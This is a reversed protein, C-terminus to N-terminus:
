CVVLVGVLGGALMSLLLCLSGGFDVVVLLCLLLNFLLCWIAVRLCVLFSLVRLWLLGCGGCGVM